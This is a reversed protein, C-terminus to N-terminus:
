SIRHLETLELQNVLSKRYQPNTHDYMLGYRVPCNCILCYAVIDFAEFTPNVSIDAIRVWICTPQSKAAHDACRSILGGRKAFRKGRLIRALEQKRIRREDHGVFGLANREAICWVVKNELKAFLSLGNRLGEREEETLYPATRAFNRRSRGYLLYHTDRDGCDCSNVIRFACAGNPTIPMRDEPDDVEEIVAWRKMRQAFQEPDCRAEHKALYYCPHKLESM